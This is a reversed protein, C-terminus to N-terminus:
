RIKAREEAIFNQLDPFFERFDKEFLEYQEFIDDTAKHMKNKFAARRGMGSLARNLGDRKAYNALWNGSQMYRTMHQVNAPLEGWRSRFLTYCRAAFEELPTSSYEDFNKALFHDYAIDSIVPSYKGHNPRLLEKTHRVVPHSDTYADIKHHIEIGAIVEPKYAIWDSRKVSDAIFNGITQDENDHTLLLHALFNM